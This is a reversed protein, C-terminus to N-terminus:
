VQFQPDIHSIRALNVYGAFRRVGGDIAIASRPELFQSLRRVEQPELARPGDLGIIDKWRAWGYLTVGRITEGAFRKVKAAEQTLFFVASVHPLKRLEKRLTTGVKKSKSTVLDAEREVDFRHEGIWEGSWHKVEIVRVGPPGIAIIDIEDSQM